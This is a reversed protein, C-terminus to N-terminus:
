TRLGNERKELRRLEEERAYRLVEISRGMTNCELEHPEDGSALDLTSEPDAPAGNVTPDLGAFQGRWLYCGPPAAPVGFVDLLRQQELCGQRIWWAGPLWRRADEVSRWRVPTLERWPACSLAM